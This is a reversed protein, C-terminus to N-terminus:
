LRQLSDLRVLAGVNLIKFGVAEKLAESLTTKGTGPTGTVLVNPKRRTHANHRAAADGAGSGGSSGAIAAMDCKLWHEICLVPNHSACRQTHARKPTHMTAWCRLAWSPGWRGGWGCGM